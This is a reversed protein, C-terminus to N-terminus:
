THNAKGCLPSKVPGDMSPPALARCGAALAWGGQLNVRAFELVARRPIRRCRGLKVFALEGRDMAEYVSSRGVALFKAAEPVTMLGDAILEDPTM